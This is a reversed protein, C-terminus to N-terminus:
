SIRGVADCLLTVYLGAGSGWVNFMAVESPGVWGMVKGTPSIPAEQLRRVDLINTVGASGIEKLGPISYARANGDGFLGVLSHGRGETKVLAASDCLTNDWTKQAGKAAAPRFIRCGTQSVVVLVGNVKTGGRLASVTTPTAAAPNGSNADIPFIGIIRDDLSTAGISSVSYTGDSTPLIKFTAFNGRSTGVFCCISSYDSFENAIGL